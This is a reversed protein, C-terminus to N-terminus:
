ILKSTELTLTEYWRRVKLLHDQENSEAERFREAMDAQGMSDAMAILTEWGATDILEASLAAHLTQALNTRPDSVVQLLGMTAVGVLDASPTQATPDAGLQEICEKLMLAHAAEENRIQLLEDETGGPLEAAHERYKTIVGDYLRTGGREFALREALKDIFAQPRNGTMMKVGSKLAGKATGPPPISGIPDAERVYEARMDALAQTDLNANAVELDTNDMMEKAHMPSMQMGTKNGGLRTSDISEQM